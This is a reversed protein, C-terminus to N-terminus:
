INRGDTQKELENKLERYSLKVAEPKVIILYRGGTQQIIGRM